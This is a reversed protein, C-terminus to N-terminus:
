DALRVHRVAYVSVVFVLVSLVGLGAETLLMSTPGARDAVWGLLLGVWWLPFNSLSAFVNYKTAAAGAGMSVLVFATFASYALGIGFAYLLNWVIYAHVTAPWVAMGVAVLALVLGVFAYATRQHFRNCLWGGAFCGAATVFGAVLGQVLGVETAAAGWHEAVKAQTLVGQAAGTCVPLICLIGSLLGGKTKLMQGLGIVVGKIAAMPKGPRAQASEPAWSLALCCAMFLTGLVAGSM